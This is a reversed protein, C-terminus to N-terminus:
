VVMTTLGRNAGIGGESSEGLIVAMSADSLDSVAILCLAINGGQVIRAALVFPVLNGFKNAFDSFM